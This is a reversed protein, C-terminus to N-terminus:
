LTIKHVEPAPEENFWLVLRGNELSKSSPECLVTAPLRITRSCRGYECEGTWGPLIPTKTATITIVDLVRSVEVDKKDVGPLEACIYFKGNALNTEVNMWDAIKPSKAEPAQPKAPWEKGVPEEAKDGPFATTFFDGRIFTSADCEKKPEEAVPTKKCESPSKLAANVIPMLSSMILSFTEATSKAPNSSMAPTKSQALTLTPLIELKSVNSKRM